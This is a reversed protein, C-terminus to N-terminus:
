LKKMFSVSRNGKSPKENHAVHRALRVPVGAAKRRADTSHSSALRVREM